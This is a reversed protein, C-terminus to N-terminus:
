PPKLYLPSKHDNSPRLIKKFFMKKVLFDASQAPFNLNLEFVREHGEFKLCFYCVLMMILMKKIVHEKLMFKGQTIFETM